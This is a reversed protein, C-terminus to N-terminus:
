IHLMNQSAPLYQTKTFNCLFVNKPSYRKIDEVFDVIRQPFYKQHCYVGIRFFNVWGLDNQPPPHVTLGAPEYGVVNYNCLKMMSKHVHLILISLCLM